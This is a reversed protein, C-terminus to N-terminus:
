DKVSEKQGASASANPDTSDGSKENAAADSVGALDSAGRASAQSQVIRAVREAHDVAAKKVEDDPYQKSSAATELSLLGAKIDDHMEVPDNAFVVQKDIEAHIVELTSKSLSHGMLNEVIRKTAERKYTISPYNLTESLAKTEKRRDEDSKLDYTVPYRIEAIEKTEEYQSWLVAIQKEAVEMALGIASLGAELTREDGKKSEASARRPTLNQVTLKVLLRIDTKIQHGKEMSIRLPEASPNIFSPENTNRPYRRANANGLVIEQNKATQSDKVEGGDVNDTNQDDENLSPPRLHPSDSLPDYQEVYFPVNSKLSYSLDSSELNMLAIQYDAVDAMLSGTLEFLVFPIKDTQLQVPVGDPEGKVNVPKGEISFFQCWVIGESDIWYYRFRETAAKPLGTTVDIDNITDRLLLSKFQQLDGTSKWVWNLIDEARYMYLYPHGTAEALTIGRDQPADVYVGVKGMSLLEPLVESGLYSDMTSGLLDVGGENGTIADQYSEPGGNRRVEVLRQFIADKVENVAGKAFAPVYTIAKREAFEPGSERKSFKKLYKERFEERSRYTLRWKQWEEISAQYIPHRLATINSKAGIISNIHIAASLRSPSQPDNTFKSM